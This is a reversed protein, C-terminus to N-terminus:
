MDKSPWSLSEVLRIAFLMPWGLLTDSTLIFISCASVIRNKTLIATTVVTASNIAFAGIVFTVLTMTM